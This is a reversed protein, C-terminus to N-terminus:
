RRLTITTPSPVVTRITTPTVNVTGGINLTTPVSGSSSLKGASTTLTGGASATNTVTAATTGTLSTTRTLTIPPTPTTATTTAASLNAPALQLARNLLQGQVGLTSLSPTRSELTAGGVFTTAKIGALAASRSSTADQLGADLARNGGLSGVTSFVNKTTPNIGGTVGTSRQLVDQSPASATITGGNKLNIQVPPLPLTRGLGNGITSDRDGIESGPRKLAITLRKLSDSLKETGLPQALNVPTPLSARDIRSPLSGQKVPTDEVPKTSLAERARDLREALVAQAADPGALALTELRDKAVSVAAGAQVTLSAGNDNRVIGQGANVEIVTRVQAPAQGEGSTSPPLVSAHLDANDFQVQAEPTKLLVPMPQAVEGPGPKALVGVNGLNVTMVTLAGAGTTEPREFLIDSGPKVNVFVKDPTKLQGLAGPETVLREGVSLQDGQRAPRSEGDPGVINVGETAFLIQAVSAPVQAHAIGAVGLSAIILTTRIATHKM